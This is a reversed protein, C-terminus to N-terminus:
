ITIFKLLKAWHLGSHKALKEFRNKSDKNETNKRVVAPLFMAISSAHSLGSM